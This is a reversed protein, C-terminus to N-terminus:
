GLRSLVGTSNGVHALVSALNFCADAYSPVLSIARRFAAIAKDVQGSEFLMSGFNNWAEVYGPDSRLALQFQAAAAETQGLRYLVNGLNFHLVPDLPDLGLARRYTEAAEELRESIELAVADAFLDDSSRAVAIFSLNADDAYTEDEFDLRLQGSPEALLGNDLRVLLRSTSEMASVQLLPSQSEPLLRRLQELGKRIEAPSLGSEILDCLTRAAAVQHFDFLAVRNVTEAPGILGQKLWSRIREGPLKLIRALQLVTYRRRIGEAQRDLGLREVFEEESLIELNCGHAKFRRAKELQATPKGDQGLPLGGQGIILLRTRLSLDRTLRGGFDRILDGVEAQSMSAFRGTVAVEAGQLHNTTLETTGTM